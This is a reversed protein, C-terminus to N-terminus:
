HLAHEIGQTLRAATTANYGEVVDRVVQRRDVLYYTVRGGAGYQMYLNPRPMLRTYDHPVYSVIAVPASLKVSDRWYTQLYAQEQEVTASDVKPIKGDFFTVIQM